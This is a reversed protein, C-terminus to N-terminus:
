DSERIDVCTHLEHQVYGLAGLLPWLYEGRSWSTLTYGGPLVDDVLEHEGSVHGM